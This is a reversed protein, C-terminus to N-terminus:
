KGRRSLPVYVAQRELGLLDGIFELVEDRKDDKLHAGTLYVVKWGLKLAEMHKNFDATMGPLSYHGPGFGHIEVAVKNLRWAFDFRFLRTPSFRLERQPISSPFEQSWYKFFKEELESPTARKKAKKRKGKKKKKAM